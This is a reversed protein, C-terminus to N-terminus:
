LLAHPFAPKETARRVRLPKKPMGNARAVATRNGAAIGAKMAKKTLPQVDADVDIDSVAGLAVFHAVEAVRDVFENAAFPPDPFTEILAARSHVQVTLESAEHITGSRDFPCPSVVTGNLTAAL